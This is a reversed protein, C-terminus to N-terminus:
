YPIAMPGLETLSKFDDVLNEQLLDCVDKHDSNQVIQFKARVLLFAMKALKKKMRDYGECSM